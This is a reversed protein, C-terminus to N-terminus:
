SSHYPGSLFIKIVSFQALFERVQNKETLCKHRTILAVQLFKILALLTM